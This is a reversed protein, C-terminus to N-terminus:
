CKLAETFRAIREEYFERSPQHYLPGLALTQRDRIIQKVYLARMAPALSPISGEVATRVDIDEHLTEPTRPVESVVPTDFLSPQRDDKKM